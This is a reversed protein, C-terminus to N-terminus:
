IKSRLKTGQHFIMRWQGDFSKWISSRRSEQSLSKEVLKKTAIYKVLVVDDSLKICKFQSLSWKVGQEKPLSQLIDKKNYESADSGVEVFSDDLLMDLDELSKQIDPKLLREELEQIVYQVDKKM